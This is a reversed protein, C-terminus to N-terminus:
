TKDFSPIECWSIIVGSSIVTELNNFNHVWCDYERDYRAVVKGKGYFCLKEDNDEPLDDKNKQLDHLKPRGSELGTLFAEKNHQWDLCSSHEKCNFCCSLCEVKSCYEEALEEDTM